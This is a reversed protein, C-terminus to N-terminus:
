GHNGVNQSQRKLFRLHPEFFRSAVVKGLLTCGRRLTSDRPLRADHPLASYVPLNLKDNRVERKELWLGCRM